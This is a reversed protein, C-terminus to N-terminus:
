SAIRKYTSSKRYNPGWIKTERWKRIVQLDFECVYIGEQEDARILCNDVAQYNEDEIIPSYAASAGNYQPTPYNAMAVGIMNEFARTSFQRLQVERLFSANPVLIIEAGKLMLVRASEPMERDFCIMLGVAVEGAKTSLKAVRFEDGPEILSEATFDCTHVKSYHLTEEGLHDFVTASNRPRAGSTEELYTIAVAVDLERALKQFHGVFSSDKEVARQQWDKVAQEDDVAPFDYGVNWLEPFLIIDAGQEAAERCHKEGKAIFDAELEGEPPLVQLM